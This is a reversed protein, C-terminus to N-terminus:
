SAGTTTRGKLLARMKTRVQLTPREAVMSFLYGVAVLAMWVLLCLLLSGVSPELPRQAVFLTAILMLVPFHVAYLSYSANAGYTAVWGLLPPLRRNSASLALVAIMMGLAVVISHAAYTFQLLRPTALGFLLAAGGLSLSLRSLSPRAALMAKTSPLLFFALSGLLWCVFGVILKSFLFMTGLAILAIIWHSGRRQWLLFFAPFWFYYWFENALSWLPANSGFTPVALTQLFFINGLAIPVTLHDAVDITQFRAGQTGLYLPVGLGYRGIADLLGGLLVVPILVLWLRSLRDVAYDRWSWTGREVRGVVSSTIWFGSIVFFVMVADPALGALVYPIKWLIGDGSQYDRVLLNWCHNHVVVSAAVARMIDLHAFGLSRSAAANAGRATDHM